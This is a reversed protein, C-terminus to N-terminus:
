HYGALFYLWYIAPVHLYISPSKGAPQVVTLRAVEGRYYDLASLNQNEVPKGLEEGILRYLIDLASMATAEPFTHQSSPNLVISLNSLSQQQDV